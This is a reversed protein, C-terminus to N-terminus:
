RLWDYFFSYSHIFCGLLIFALWNPLLLLFVVAWIIFIVPSGILRCGFRVTNHFAHDKVKYKCLLEGTLWLPFSLAAALLWFPFLLVRLWIPYKQSPVDPAILASMRSALEELFAQYRAGELDNEHAALFANVDIPEGYVIDCTGRYHFFDSYNIGVPVVKTPREAASQFAMRAVGKQLPQLERGPNHRGEPFMCFPTNNALVDQVEDMTEYNRLVNRIGDRRRVMPLIKLFRLIKGVTPQNFIDARAGFVTPAHRSQLIVLADMLTNTHNPCILVAQEEPIAGQVTLRSYSYRTCRDVYQRLLSYLRDREWIKRM